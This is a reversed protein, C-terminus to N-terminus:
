QLIVAITAVIMGALVFGAIFTIAKLPNLDGKSGVVIYHIIGGLMLCIAVFYLVLSITSM